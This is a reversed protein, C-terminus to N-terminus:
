SGPRIGRAALYARGRAHAQTRKASIRKLTPNGCFWVKFNPNWVWEGMPCGTTPKAASGTPRAIRRVSRAGPKGKVSMSPNNM